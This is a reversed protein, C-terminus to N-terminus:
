TDKGVAVHYADACWVSEEPKRKDHGVRVTLQDIERVADGLEDLLSLVPVQHENDLSLINRTLVARM